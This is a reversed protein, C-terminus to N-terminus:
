ANRETVIRKIYDFCKNPITAPKILISLALTICAIIITNLGPHLGIRSQMPYFFVAVLSHWLYIDLSHNKGWEGLTHLHRSHPQFRLFFIFTFIAVPMTMIVIDGASHHIIAMEAYLLLVSSILLWVVTTASPLHSEYIRILVGIMVSPIAITLVNRSYELPNNEDFLIFGYSGIALNILIGIPILFFLISFRKIKLLILVVILVQLYSTLYWLHARVSTGYLIEYVWYSPSSYDGFEKNTMIKIIFDFLLYALTVFITIKMIKIFINRIKASSIIGNASVIFYGSIIFFIPVSIRCIPLVFRGVVSYTHIQVVM